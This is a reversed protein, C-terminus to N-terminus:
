ARLGECCHAQFHGHREHERAKAVAPHQDVVRHDNADIRTSNAVMPGPVGTQSM